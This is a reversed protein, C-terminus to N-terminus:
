GEAVSQVLQAFSEGMVEITATAMGVLPVSVYELRGEHRRFGYGTDGGDTGILTLGPVFELVSYADNLEPLDAASWLSFFADEALFGEVGDTELLFAKYEAPLETGLTREAEEVVAVSAGDRTSCSQLLKPLSM